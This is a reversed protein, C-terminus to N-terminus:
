TIKLCQGMYYPENNIELEGHKKLYDRVEDNVVCGTDHFFLAYRDALYPEIAKFDRLCCEPTHLSDIFVFDIDKPSTNPIDQPSFGIVPLVVNGLEFLKILENTIRYGDSNSNVTKLGSYIYSDNVSEELYNDITILTGGTEKMGLGIAVSSIGFGTCIEYGSKLNHKKIFDIFYNAEKETISLPATHNVMGLSHSRRQLGQVNDLIYDFQM